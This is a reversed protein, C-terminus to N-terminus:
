VNRQNRIERPRASVRSYVELTREAVVDWSHHKKSYAQIEPRKSELDRYLDSEFYREIAKTLSSSDCPDCVFGTAGEVIEEKLSGVDTAIAPVGFSHGLFLVGSQSIFKYPLVFVDAAKFYLETEEDPIFEIRQIVRGPPIERKITQFIEDAYQEAGGRLKGAIILRVKPNRAVVERFAAVLYELGKYPGINGFFLITKEGEGIGLRSKAERPTLSTVPVSNNIGFPIVTAAQERVGFNEMLERKMKETHVFIQDCLWYQAKLTVRNLFSDNSDRTGSNINHATFVVKKGLAKYCLMLVTRDFVWLKNNWLIHLVKADTRAAYSLLRAYYSLLQSTKNIFSAEARRSERFNLFHLGPTSRMEPGDLDDNAVVDVSAGHSALAPALGFVYPRDQCGTLLGVRMESLAKAAPFEAGESDKARSLEPISTTATMTEVKSFWEHPPRTADLFSFCMSEPATFSPPLLPNM